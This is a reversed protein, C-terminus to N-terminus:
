TNLHCENYVCENNVHPRRKTKLRGNNHIRREKTLKKGPSTM